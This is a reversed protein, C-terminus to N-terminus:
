CCFDACVPQIILVLAADHIGSWVMIDMLTIGTSM